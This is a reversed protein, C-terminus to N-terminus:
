PNYNKPRWRKNVKKILGREGANRLAHKFELKSIYIGRDEEFEQLFQEMNYGPLYGRNAWQICANDISKKRSPKDSTAPKAPKERDFTETVGGEEYIEQLHRSLANLLDINAKEIEESNDVFPVRGLMRRVIIRAREKNIPIVEVYGIEGFGSGLQSLILEFRITKKDFKRTRVYLGNLVGKEYTSRLVFDNIIDQLYEASTKYVKDLYDERPWINEQSLRGLYTNIVKRLHERKKKRLLAKEARSQKILGIIAAHKENDQLESIKAKDAGSLITPDSLPPGKFTVLSLVPRLKRVEVTGLDELQDQWLRYVISGPTERKSEFNIWGPAYGPLCAETAAVLVEFEIPFEYISM